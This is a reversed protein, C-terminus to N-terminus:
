WVAVFTLIVVSAIGPGALPLLIRSWVEFSSAGDVRAAEELELPIGRYTGRMLLIALPLNLAIYPLILGPITNLLGMHSELLYVPILYLAFPVAVTLLIIAFM